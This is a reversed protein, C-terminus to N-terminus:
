KKQKYMDKNKKNNDKPKKKEKKKKIQLSGTNLLCNQNKLKFDDM